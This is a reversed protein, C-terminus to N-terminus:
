LEEVATGVRQSTGSKKKKKDIPVEDEGVEAHPPLETHPRTFLDFRTVMAEKLKRKFMATFDKFLAGRVEIWFYCTEEPHSRGFPMLTPATGGRIAIEKFVEPDGSYSGTVFLQHSSPGLKCYIETWEEAVAEDYVRAFGSAQLYNVLPKLGQEVINLARNQSVLLLDWRPKETSKDTPTENAEDSM